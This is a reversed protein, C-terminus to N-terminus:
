LCLYHLSQEACLSCAQTKFVRLQQPCPMQRWENAIIKTSAHWSQEQHRALRHTHQKNQDPKSAVETSLSHGRPYHLSEASLQFVAARRSLSLPLSRSHILSHTLSSAKVNQMTHRQHEHRIDIINMSNIITININM